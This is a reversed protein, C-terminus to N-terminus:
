TSELRGRCQGLRSGTSGPDGEFGLAKLHDAESCGDEYRNPSRGTQRARLRSFGVSNLSASACERGKAGEVRLRIGQGALLAGDTWRWSGSRSANDLFYRDHTIALSPGPYQRRSGGCAEAPRSPQDTRRACCCDPKAFCCRACLWGDASGGSLVTVDPTVPARARCLPAGARHCCLVRPPTWAPGVRTWTPCCCRTGVRLAAPTRRRKAPVVQPMRRDDQVVDDQGRRQSRDCGRHRQASSRLEPRGHATPRRLGKWTSQSSWSTAWGVSGASDPDGRLGLKRTREAEAAMEEYRNLRSKSKPKAREPDRASGSSNTPSASACRADKAGEM